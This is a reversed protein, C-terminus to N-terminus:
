QHTTLNLLRLSPQRLFSQRKRRIPSPPMPLTTTIITIILVTRPLRLQTTARPSNKHRWWPLEHPRWHKTAAIWSPVKRRRRVAIAPWTPARRIRRVASLTGRRHLRKLPPLRPLHQQQQAATSFSEMWHPVVIVRLIPANPIPRVPLTQNRLMIQNSKTGMAGMLEVPSKRREEM